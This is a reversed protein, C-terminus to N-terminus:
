FLTALTPITIVYPQRLGKLAIYAESGEYNFIV